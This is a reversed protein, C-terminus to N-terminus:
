DPVDTTFGPASAEDIEYPRVDAPVTNDIFAGGTSGDLFIAARDLLPGGLVNGRVAVGPFWQVLVAQSGGVECVNGVFELGHSRGVEGGAGAEEATAILCQHDVDRCVNDAVVADVTPIRSNDYTQFCDTHPPEGAYGDDKIDSVTNGVIAVDTGFFRIGDADGAERRVSGSITNGRVTIQEGEVIIGSGDAETVTNGEILVDACNHECSIGDQDAGDVDNGRVTLGRGSLVIGEGGTVAFGVVHVFDAGVTVSRVPAGDALLTMPRAAEGSRTMTLDTGALGTGTICVVDGPGAAALAEEVAGPSTLAATCATGDIAPGAPPQPEAGTCGTVLFAATVGVVFLRAVRRGALM